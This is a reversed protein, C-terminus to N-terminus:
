LRSPHGTAHGLEHLATAYYGDASPFQSREPLTIADNRVSYYARSGAVHQIPVGSGALIAEAREHRQWEEPGRKSEHPPLGDIQSANFVTHTIARPRDYQVRTRQEKGDADLVANGQADRVTETGEFAFYQIKTGREGKRVQGGAAEAQRYTMWRPDEFGQSMLYMFNIGRYTADTTPNFPPQLEGAKWPRQWPAVGRELMDILREAVQEPYSKRDTSM